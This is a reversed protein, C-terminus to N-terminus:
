LKGGVIEALYENTKKQELLLEKIDCLLEVISVRSVNTSGNEDLGLVKYESNEYDFGIGLVRKALAADNHEDRGTQEQTKNGKM